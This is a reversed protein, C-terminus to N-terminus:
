LSTDSVHAAFDAEQYIFSGKYFVFDLIHIPQNKLIQGFKLWFQSLNLFIKSFFQLKTWFKAWFQAIYRTRYLTIEYM